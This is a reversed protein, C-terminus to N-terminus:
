QLSEGLPTPGDALDSRSCLKFPSRHAKPAQCELMWEFFDQRCKVLSSCLVKLMMRSM